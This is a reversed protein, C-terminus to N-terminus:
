PRASSMVLRVVTGDANSAIETRDALARMLPVGLGSEFRLRAPDTPEPLPARSSPDFGAGRDVVEVVLHASEIQCRVAIRHLNGALVHARIANTTAESVAVQLDHIRDEDLLLKTRAVTAVFARVVALYEPDPPIEIVAYNPTAIVADSTGEM